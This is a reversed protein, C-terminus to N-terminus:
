SQSAYSAIRTLAPNRSFLHLPIYPRTGLLPFAMPEPSGILDYGASLFVRWVLETCYLKDATRLDFAYDFPVKRTAFALAAQVVKQRQPETLRDARIALAASAADPRLYSQLSEVQAADPHGPEGTTTHVVAAGRGGTVVVAIHSFEGRDAEALAASTASPGLRLVM